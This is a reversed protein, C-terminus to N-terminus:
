HAHFIQLTRSEFDIKRNFVNHVKCPCGLGVEGLRFDEDVLFPRALADSFFDVPYTFFDMRLVSIAGDEVIERFDGPDQIESGALDRVIREEFADQDDFFFSARKVQWFSM